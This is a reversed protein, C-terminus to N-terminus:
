PQCEMGSYCCGASTVFPVQLFQFGKKYDRNFHDAAVALRLKAHKELLIATAAETEANGGSTSADSAGAGCAYRRGHAKNKKSSLATSLGLSV